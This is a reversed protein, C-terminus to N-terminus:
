NEFEPMKYHLSVQRHQPNSKLSETLMGTELSVDTLFQALINLLM